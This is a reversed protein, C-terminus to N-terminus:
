PIVLAWITVPMRPDFKLCADVLHFMKGTLIKKKHTHFIYLLMFYFIDLQLLQINVFSKRSKSAANVLLIASTM